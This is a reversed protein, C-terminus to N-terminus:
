EPFLSQKARKKIQYIKLDNRCLPGAKVASSSVSGLVNRFHASLLRKVPSTGAPASNQIEM